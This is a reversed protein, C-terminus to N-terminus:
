ILASTKMAILTRVTIEQLREAENWARINDDNVIM